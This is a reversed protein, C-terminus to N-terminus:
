TSRRAAGGCGTASLVRASTVAIKAGAPLSPVDAWKLDQPTTLKHAAHQAGVSVSFAAVALVFAAGSLKKM